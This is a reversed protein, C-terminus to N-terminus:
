YGFRVSFKWDGNGTCEVSYHVDRWVTGHEHFLDSLKYLGTYIEDTPTIIEPYGEPSSILIRMKEHQGDELRTVSMKAQRWSEPTAVILANAIEADIPAEKEVLSSM